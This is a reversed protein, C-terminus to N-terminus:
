IVTPAVFRVVSVSNYGPVFVSGDSSTEVTWIGTPLPVPDGLVEYTETDIVILNPPHSFDYQLTYALSGDPSVAVAERGGTVPVRHTAATAIDIFVVEGSGNVVVRQGDPLVDIDWLNGSVGNWTDLHAGTQADYISVAGLDINTVYIKDGILVMGEPGVTPIDFLRTPTSTSIDLVSISGSQHDGFGSDLNSLYARTGDASIEAWQPDGSAIYQATPTQATLDFLYAGNNTYNRVTLVLKTGDPSVAFGTLIGSPLAIDAEAPELTDADVIRLTNSWTQVLYLQDNRIVLDYIDNGGATPLPESVSAVLPPVAVNDIALSQVQNGEDDSVTFTFSDVEDAATLGARYREAQTLTYSYTVVRTTADIATVDYDVTGYAPGDLALTVDDGDADTVRFSGTVSGDAGSTNRVADSIAPPHEPAIVTVDIVTTATHTQGPAHIHFGSGEDSVIVTFSDTLDAKEDWGSGPTYTWTHTAQDTTVTGHAPAGAGSVPVSYTVVDGDPDAPAGSPVFVGHLQNDDIDQSTTAPNLTPTHNALGHNSEERVWALLGWLLPTDFLAGPGFIPEFFSVVINVAANILTAPAELLQQIPDPTLDQVKNSVTSLAAFQRASPVVAEPAPTADDAVRLGAAAAPETDAARLPAEAPTAWELPATTPKGPASAGSPKVNADSTPVDSPPEAPEERPPATPADSELGTTATDTDGGGEDVDVDTSPDTVVRDDGTDASTAPPADPTPGDPQSDDTDPPDTPDPPASKPTGAGHGTGSPTDGAPGTASASSSDGDTAWAPGPPAGFWMGIGLAAALAGVRGIYRAHVSSRASNM